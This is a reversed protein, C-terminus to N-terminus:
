QELQHLLTQATKCSTTCCIAVTGFFICSLCMTTTRNLDSVRQLSVAIEIGIYAYLADLPLNNMYRRRKLGPVTWRSLTTVFSKNLFLFFLGLPGHHTYSAQVLGRCLVNLDSMDKWKKVYSFNRLVEEETMRLAEPELETKCVEEETGLKEAVSSFNGEM